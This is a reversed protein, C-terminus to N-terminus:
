INENTHTLIENEKKLNSILYCLNKLYKTLGIRFDYKEVIECYVKDSLINCASKILQELHNTKKPELKSASFIPHKAFTNHAFSDQAFKVISECYNTFERDIEDIDIQIISDILESFTSKHSDVQYAYDNKLRKEFKKQKEVENINVPELLSFQEIYKTHKMKNKEYIELLLHTKGSSRGGILVNLNPHFSILLDNDTILDLKDYDLYVRKLKISDKINMFKTSAADVFTCNSTNVYKDDAVRYDSSLWPAFIETQDNKMRYFKAANSVEGVFIVDVYKRLEHKSLQDKKDYHPIIIYDEGGFDDLINKASAYGEIENNLYQYKMVKTEFDSVNSPNAIVILHGTHVNIEIGPYITINTNENVLLNYQSRDFINHNTIAVCSLKSEAIYEKFREQTFEFNSDRETPITHIHFDCKIM